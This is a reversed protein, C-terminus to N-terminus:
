YRPWLICKSSWYNLIFAKTLLYPQAADFFKV